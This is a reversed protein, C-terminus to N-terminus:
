EGESLLDMQGQLMKVFASKPDLIKIRRFMSYIESKLPRVADECDKDAICFAYGNRGPIRCSGIPLNFVELLRKVADKINRDCPFRGCNVDAAYRQIDQISVAKDLGFARQWLLTDLVFREVNTMGDSRKAMDVRRLIEEEADTFMALQASAAM